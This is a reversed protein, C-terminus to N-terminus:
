RQNQGVLLVRATSLPVAVPAEWKLASVLAQADSVQAAGILLALRGRPGVLGAAQPLSTAFREVARMTVLAARGTFEEARRAFVTVHALGLARVVERLFTAKKQQAELLTVRSQPAAIALPLGPFGAGAGFDLVTEHPQPALLRAAFLSEGFHRTVINEQERVATLNLRQNWRLLLELYQALRELQQPALQAGALFPALLEAIREPSV